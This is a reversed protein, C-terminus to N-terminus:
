KGEIHNSNSPDYVSAGMFWYKLPGLWQEEFDTFKPDVKQWKKIFLRALEDFKEENVAHHMVEIDKLIEGRHKHAILRKQVNREVHIYCMIMIEVSPLKATCANRIPVSGDAILIKPKLDVDHALKM